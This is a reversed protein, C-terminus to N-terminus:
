IFGSIGIKYTETQKEGKKQFNSFILKYDEIIEGRKVGFDKLLLNLDLNLSRVEM